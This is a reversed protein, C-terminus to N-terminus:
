PARTELPLSLEIALGGLVSPSASITGDHAEAISRCIALGLGSGATARNRSAEVRYFRDFLRPLDAAAVGPASDEFRLLLRGDTTNHTIRLRGGPDTYRLTNEILNATLQRLRDPDALVCAAPDARREFAVAIRREHLRPALATVVEDVIELPDLRQRRLALGGADARALEHLDDVLRTLALVEAHLRGVVAASPQHVGDKLAEIQARLISIPTRLEHSTDAVWQRRSAEQRGLTAGLRNFDRMLDGIEDRRTESLRASYDGAALRETGGRLEQLPRVFSRRLLLAALASLLLGAVGIVVLSRLSETIFARDIEDGFPPRALVLHGVPRGQVHLPRRVASDLLGGRNGAVLEGGPGLLALRELADFRAYPPPGKGGKPSPFMADRPARKGEPPGPRPFDPRERAKQVLAQWPVEGGVIAQWGDHERHLQELEAALAGLADLQVRAIYSALGRRISLSTAGIVVAVILSTVLLVTWFLKQGVTARM